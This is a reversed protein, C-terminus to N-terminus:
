RGAVAVEQARFAQAFVRAAQADMGQELLLFAYDRSTRAVETALGLREFERLAYAYRNAAEDFRGERQCIAAMVAEARAAEAPDQLRVALRIAEEAHRRATEVDGSLMAARALESLTQARGADDALRTAAEFSQQLVETGERPRGRDVLLIGLSRKVTALLRLNEQAEFIAAAKSLHEEAAEFSQQQEYAVGLNFHLAGLATPDDLSELRDLAARYCELAQAPLGLETYVRGLNTLVGGEFAADVPHASRIAVLAETFADRAAPYDRKRLSLFGTASAVRAVLDPRGLAGALMRGRVLHQEALDFQRLGTLAQGLGIEIRFAVDLPLNGRGVREAEQYAELADSYRHQHLLAAAADLRTRVAWRPPPDADLLESVSLQLRGAIVKLTELSPRVKNHEVMSIFSESLESGALARQTLGRAKRAQRIKEGLTM